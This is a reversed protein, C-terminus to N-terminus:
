AAAAEADLEEAFYQEVIEVIEDESRGARQAAEILTLVQQREFERENMMRGLYRGPDGQRM